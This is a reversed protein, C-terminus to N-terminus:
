EWEGKEKLLAVSSFYKANKKILAPDKDWWRLEKLYAIEEEGFRYRILKAPNGGVIAYDPVDKVVVAGAAIIAGNGIRVGEMILAHSGIWVDNGIEVCYKKGEDLWRFEEFLQQEAYSFGSQNLLSYFCPSTSVWDRSPHQGRVVHVDAGISCYRGIRCYELKSGPSIFSARGM